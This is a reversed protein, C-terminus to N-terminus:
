FCVAAFPAVHKSCGEVIELFGLAEALLMKGM